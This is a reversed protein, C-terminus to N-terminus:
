ILILEGKQTAFCKGRSVIRKGKRCEYEGTKHNVKCKM